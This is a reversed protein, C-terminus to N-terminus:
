AISENMVGESWFQFEGRRKYELERSFNAAEWLIYFLKLENTKSIIIKM